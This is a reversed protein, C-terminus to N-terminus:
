CKLGDSTHLQRCNDRRASPLEQCYSHCILTSLTLKPDIHFLFLVISLPCVQRAAEYVAVTPARLAHVAEYAQAAQEALHIAHKLGIAMRDMQINPIRRNSSTPGASVILDFLAPGKTMSFIYLGPTRTNHGTCCCMDPTTASRSVQMWVQYTMPYVLDSPHDVM